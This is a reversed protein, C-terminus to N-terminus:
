FDLGVSLAIRHSWFKSYEIGNMRETQRDGNSDYSYTVSGYYRERNFRMPLYSLAINIGMMNNLRFRVGVSPQLYIGGYGGYSHDSYRDWEGEGNWDKAQLCIGYSDKCNIIDGIKCGVFINTTHLNFFDWRAEGFIPLGLSDSEPVFLAGLGAGIFLKNIQVGHSTSVGLTMGGANADEFTVGDSNAMPYTLTFDVFGRYHQASASLIGTLAIFLTLLAKKM